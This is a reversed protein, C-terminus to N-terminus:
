YLSDSIRRNSDLAKQNGDQVAEQLAFLGKETDSFLDTRLKEIMSQLVTLTDNQADLGIKVERLAARVEDPSTVLSGPPAQAAAKSSDSVTGRGSERKPAEWWALIALRAEPRFRPKASIHVIESGSGAVGEDLELRIRYRRPKGSIVEAKEAKILGGSRVEPWSSGPTRLILNVANGAILKLGKARFDGNEVEIRRRWPLWGPWRSGLLGGILAAGLASLVLWKVPPALTHGQGMGGGSEAETSRVPQSPPAPRTENRSPQASIYVTELPKAKETTCMLDVESPLDASGSHLIDVKAIRDTIILYNRFHAGGSIPDFHWGPSSECQLPLSKAFVEAVELTVSTKYDKGQKSFSVLYVGGKKGLVINPPQSSPETNLIQAVESNGLLLLMFAIWLYRM